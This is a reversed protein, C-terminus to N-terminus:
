TLVFNAGTVQDRNTLLPLSIGSVIRTLVEGYTINPISLDGYWLFGANRSLKRLAWKSHRSSVHGGKVMRSTRTVRVGETTFSVIGVSLGGLLHGVIVFLRTVNKVEAWNTSLGCLRFWALGCREADGIIWWITSITFFIRTNVWWLEILIPTFTKLLRRLIIWTNQNWFTSICGRSLSSLNRCLVMGTEVVTIWAEITWLIIAIRINSDVKIGKTDDLTQLPWLTWTLSVISRINTYSSHLRTPQISFTFCTRATAWTIGSGFITSGIPYTVRLYVVV